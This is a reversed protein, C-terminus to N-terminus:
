CLLCLVTMALVIVFHSMDKFNLFKLAGRTIVNLLTRKIVLSLNIANPVPVNQVNTYRPMPMDSGSPLTESKKKDLDSLKSM